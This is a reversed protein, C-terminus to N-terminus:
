AAMRGPMTGFRGIIANQGQNMGQQLWDMYGQMRQQATPDQQLKGMFSPDALSVQVVQQRLQWNVGKEKLAPDFGNVIKMLDAQTEDIERESASDISQVLKDALFPDMTRMAYSVLGALDIVGFKDFPLITKGIVELKKAAFEPNLERADFAIQIDYSGRIEERTAKFPKEVVGIVRTVQTDDLYQQMLAVEQMACLRHEILWGSVLDQAYLAQKDQSVYESQRGFLRDLGRETSREVEISGQQNQPISMFQMDRPNRLPIQSGPKWDLNPPVKGPSVLLPPITAMSSLDVRNDRQVKIERQSDEALEASGRSDLLVPTCYERVHAVYPYDGHAFDHIGSLAVDPRTMVRQLAPCFITRHLAPVNDPGVAKHWFHVLEVRDMDRSLSSELTERRGVAFGRGRQSWTGTFIRDGKYKLSRDVWAPDYDDTLIRGRLDSEDVLEVEAIWRAEQLDECEANWFVDILPRLARRRPQNRLLYPVPLRTQGTQRLERIMRRASGRKVMPSLSMLFEAAEGERADEYFMSAADLLMLRSDPGANEEMSQLLTDLNLVEYEVRARQDWDIGTVAIGFTQRWQAVRETQITLNRLCKTYYMWRLLTTVKAAHAEDTSEMGVCQLTSRWFAAKLIKVEDSIVEEVTRIKMDSCGDFPFVERGQLHKWKKGDVSQGPWICQRTDWSDSHRQRVTDADTVAQEMAAIMTRVDPARDFDRDIVSDNM